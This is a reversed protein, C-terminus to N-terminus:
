EELGMAKMAKDRLFDKFEGGQLIESIYQRIRSKVCDRITKDLYHKDKILAEILADKLNTEILKELEETVEPELNINVRLYMTKIGKM